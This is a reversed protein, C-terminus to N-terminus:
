YGFFTNFWDLYIQSEEFYGGKAAIVADCVRPMIEILKLRQVTAKSIDTVQVSFCNRLRTVRIFKDKAAPTVKPRGKRHHDEHSGTEDFWQITKTVASSSINM